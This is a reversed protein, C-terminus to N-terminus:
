EKISPQRPGIIMIVIVNRRVWFISMFILKFIQTLISLHTQDINTRTFNFLISEFNLTLKLTLNRVARYHFVKIVFYFHTVEPVFIYTCYLEYM